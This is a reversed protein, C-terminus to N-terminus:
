KAVKESAPIEPRSYFCYTGRGAEKARYMAEDAYSVLLSANDGDVPYVSIGISCGINLELEQVHFPRTLQALVVKAIKECNELSGIDTALVTFEDGGRRSVTDGERLCRRLRVAVNQLLMDGVEHGYIDNIPKFRDLDIFLVAMMLKNRQCNTIGMRLRDDFLLRNPLRTLLDEYALSSLHEETMRQQTVDLVTVIYLEQQDLVAKNRESLAIFTSGDKRLGVLDDEKGKLLEHLLKGKIGGDAYGFMNEATQNAKLVLDDGSVVLVSASIKNIIDDLLNHQRSFEDIRRTYVFFAWFFNILALAFASGQYIRIQGTERKTQLELETTLSNMLALLKLNNSEAENIAPQLVEDTLGAGALLVNQLHIRYPQWLTVADNVALRAGPVSVAPLFLVEGAGGRTENGRDFGRLTSDFLEFTLRLEDMRERSERGSQRDDDIQLLVKVMRQSLMRQRGALNISIAQQEIKYSLWFNLALAACDFIIFLVIALMAIRSNKKEHGLQM